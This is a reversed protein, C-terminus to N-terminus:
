QELAALYIPKIRLTEGVTELDLELEERRDRLLEGIAPPRSRPLPPGDDAIETFPTKIRQFLSVRRGYLLLVTATSGRLRRTRCRSLTIGRTPKSGAGCRITRAIASRTSIAPSLAPM